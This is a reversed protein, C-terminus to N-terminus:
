TGSTQFNGRCRVEVQTGSEDFNAKPNNNKSKSYEQLVNILRHKQESIVANGKGDKPIAVRKASTVPASQDPASLSM